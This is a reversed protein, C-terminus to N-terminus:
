RASALATPFQRGTRWRHGYPRSPFTVDCCISAVPGVRIVRVVRSDLHEAVASARTVHGRRFVVGESRPSELRIRTVTSVPTAALRQSRGKVGNWFRRARRTSQTVLTRAKRKNIEAQRPATTCSTFISSAHRGDDSVRFRPMAVAELAYLDSHNISPHRLSRAKSWGPIRVTLSALIWM